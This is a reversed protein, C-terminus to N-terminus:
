RIGQNDDQKNGRIEFALDNGNCFLDVLINICVNIQLGAEGEEAM